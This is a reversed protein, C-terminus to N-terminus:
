QKGHGVLASVNFASQIPNFMREKQQNLLKSLKRRNLESLVHQRQKSDPFKMYTQNLTENSSLMEQQETFLNVKIM